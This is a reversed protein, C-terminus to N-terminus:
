LHMCMCPTPITEVGIWELYMDDRHCDMRQSINYQMVIGTGMTDDGRKKIAILVLVLISQDVINKIFTPLTPISQEVFNDTLDNRCQNNSTEVLQFHVRFIGEVFFWFM